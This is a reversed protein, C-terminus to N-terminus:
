RKNCRYEITKKEKYKTKDIVLKLCGVCMRVCVSVHVRVCVCWFYPDLNGGIIHLANIGSVSSSVMSKCYSAECM